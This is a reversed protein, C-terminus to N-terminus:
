PVSCLLFRHLRPWLWVSQREKFTGADEGNTQGDLVPSNFWYAEGSSLSTCGILVKPPGRLDKLAASGYLRQYNKRLLNPLSWKSSRPLLRPILLLWGLIYQRIIRGRVDSRTFTIVDASIKSFSEGSDTYKDWHLILHSALVSGGSVASVISVSPLLKAEFLLRVVGLYFLTARFGGGSLALAIRSTTSDTLRNAGLPYSLGFM